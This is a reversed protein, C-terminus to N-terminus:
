RHNAYIRSFGELDLCFRGKDRFFDTMRRTIARLDLAGRHETEWEIGSFGLLNLSFQGAVRRLM